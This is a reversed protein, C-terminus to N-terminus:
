IAVTILVDNPNAQALLGTAHQVFALLADPTSATPQQPLWGNRMVVLVDGVVRRLRHYAVYTQEGARLLDAEAPRPRRGRVTGTRTWRRFRSRAEQGAIAGTGALDLLNLPGGACWTRHGSRPAALLPSASPPAAALLRRHPQIEDDFYTALPITWDDIGLHDAPYWFTITRVMVGRPMAIPM